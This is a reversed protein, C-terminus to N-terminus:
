RQVISNLTALIENKTAGKRIERRLMEKFGQIDNASLNPHYRLWGVLALYLQDCYSCLDWFGEETAPAAGCIECVNSSM